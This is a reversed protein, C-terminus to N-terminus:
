DDKSTAERLERVRTVSARRVLTITGNGMLPFFPPSTNLFDLTRRQGPPLLYSIRGSFSHGDIMDVCVELNRNAEDSNLEEPDAAKEVSIIHSKSVLYTQSEGCLLPMFEENVDNLRDEVRGPGGFPGTTPLYLQGVIVQEDELLVKVEVSQRPIRFGEFESKQSMHNSRKLIYCSSRSCTRGFVLLAAIRAAARRRVWPRVINFAIAKNAQQRDALGM